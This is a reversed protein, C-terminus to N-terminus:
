LCWSACSLLATFARTVTNVEEVLKVTERCGCAAQGRLDVRLGVFSELPAVPQELSRLLKEVESGSARYPLLPDPILWADQRPPRCAQASM